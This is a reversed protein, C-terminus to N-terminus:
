PAEQKAEAIKRNHYDRKFQVDSTLVGPNNEEFEDFVQLAEDYRGLRVYHVAMGGRIELESRPELNRDEELIRQAAEVHVDSPAYEKISYLIDVSLSPNDSDDLDLSKRFASSAIEKQKRNKDLPVPSDWAYLVCWAHLGLLWHLEPSNPNVALDKEIQREYADLKALSEEESNNQMIMYLTPNLQQAMQIVDIEALAQSAFMFVVSLVLLKAAIKSV